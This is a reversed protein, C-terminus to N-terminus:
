SSGENEDKKIIQEVLERLSSKQEGTGSQLTRVRPLVKVRDRERAELMEVLPTFFKDPSSLLSNQQRLLAMMEQAVAQLDPAAPAAVSSLQASELILKVPAELKPWLMPFLEDFHEESRRDPPPVAGNIDTILKRFDTEGFITGQFMSLPPKIDAHGIGCLITAARGELHKSLAGAEFALWQSAINEKTLIVIGFDSQQLEERITGQWQAGKDIDTTTIFPQVAPLILPFWKRMENAISQSSQGSWSVFLKM